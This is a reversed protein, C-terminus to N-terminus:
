LLDEIALFSTSSKMKTVIAFIKRVDEIAEYGRHGTLIETIIVGLSYL